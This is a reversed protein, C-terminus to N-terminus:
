DQSAPLLITVATIMPVKEENHHLPEAKYWHILYIRNAEHEIYISSCVITIFIRKVM